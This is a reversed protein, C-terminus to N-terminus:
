LPSSDTGRYELFRRGIMKLKDTDFKGGQLLKIRQGTIWTDIAAFFKPNRTQKMNRKM